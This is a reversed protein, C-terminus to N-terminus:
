TVRALTCDPLNDKGKMYYYMEKTGLFNIYVESEEKFSVLFVSCFISDQEGTKRKYIYKM